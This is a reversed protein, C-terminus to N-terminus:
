IAFYHSPLVQQHLHPALLLSSRTRSKSKALRCRVTQVPSDAHHVGIDAKYSTSPSVFPLKPNVHYRCATGTPGVNHFLNPNCIRTPFTVSAKVPFTALLFCNLQSHLRRPVKASTTHHTFSASNTLSPTCQFNGHRVDV